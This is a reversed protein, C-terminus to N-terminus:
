PPVVGDDAIHGIARQVERMELRPMLAEPTPMQELFDRAAESDLGGALLATQVQLSAREIQARAAKEMADLRSVAVKRLEVRRAAVANEGRSWWSLTLGPSFQKPIGLEECRRAIEAQAEEVAARAVEGARHWTADHDWSYEVAMQQEFDALLEARRQAAIQRALAARQRTLKALDDRERRAMTDGSM